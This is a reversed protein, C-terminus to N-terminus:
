SAPILFMNPVACKWLVTALVACTCFLLACVWTHLHVLVNEYLTTTLITWELHFSFHSLLKKYFHGLEHVDVWCKKCVCSPCHYWCTMHLFALVCLIPTSLYIKLCFIHHYFSFLWIWVAVCRYLLYASKLTVILFPGVILIGHCKTLHMVNLDVLWELWLFDVGGICGFATLLWLWM